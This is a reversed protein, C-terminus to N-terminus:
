NSKKLNNIKNQISSIQSILDFSDQFEEESKKLKERLTKMKGMLYNHHIRNITNKAMDISPTIKEIVSVLGTLKNKDEKKELQDVVIEIQPEFKSNLHIYIEHYM